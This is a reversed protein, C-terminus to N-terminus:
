ACNGMAAGGGGGSATGGGVASGAGTASGEGTGGDSLGGDTEGGGGVGGGGASAFGGGTGPGILVCRGTAEDGRTGPTCVAQCANITNGCQCASWAVASFSAALWLLKNM